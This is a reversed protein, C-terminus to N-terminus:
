RVWRHGLESLASLHACLQVYWDASWGCNCKYKGGGNIEIAEKMDLEKM